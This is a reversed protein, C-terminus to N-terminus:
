DAEATRPSPAPRRSCWAFFSECAYGALVALLPDLVFQYRADAHTIYYPLPYIVIPLAFLAFLVKSRWLLVLGSFGGFVLPITVPMPTKSTGTWFRGFRLATLRAFEGPNGRIWHLGLETKEHMYQVEGEALFLRRANNEYTPGANPPSDGNTGPHNGLWLEYGANSRLPIFAHMRLYNRAPWPSFVAVFVLIGLWPIIRARWASWGFIALLSPLLSPNILAAAACGAGAAVFESRKRVHPAAFVAATLLLASISTDWIYVPALLMPEILACIFGALNAARIGFYRRAILVVLAVNLVSLLIQFSVIAIATAGGTGLMRMFTAILYPYGPALFATSGSPFSFPSSFGSGRHISLAISVDEDLDRTMSHPPYSHYYAATLLARAILAIALIFFLHSSEQTAKSLREPTATSAM